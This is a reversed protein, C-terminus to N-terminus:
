TCGADDLQQRVDDPMRNLSEEVTADTEEFSELVGALAFLDIEDDKPFDDLSAKFDEMSALLTRHWEAVETPPVLPSMRDIVASITAAFEGYTDPEAQSTDDLSECDLRELYEDLSLEKWGGCAASLAALIAVLAALTVLMPLKFRGSM